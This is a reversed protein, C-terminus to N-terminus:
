ASDRPRLYFDVADIPALGTPEASAEPHTSRYRSLMLGRLMTVADPHKAAVDTFEGPDAQLDYLRIYRGPTPKDTEYGDTRKRKGTCQIFKWRNTRVCAEENELYQSFIHDRETTPKSGELYPRLSQGHQIPLQQLGLLDIITPAVDIHETFSTVTNGKKIRGPLRMILPVRLAQDYCCHKEIRGHHGLMYGHNALYVVCTNQELGQQRLTKLVEGINRDLYNVSTYYSAIIGQRDETSLNRFIM